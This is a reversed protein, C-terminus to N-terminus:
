AKCGMLVYEEYLTLPKDLQHLIVLLLHCQKILRSEKNKFFLLLSIRDGHQRYAQIGGEDEMLKKINSVIFIPVYTIASSGM